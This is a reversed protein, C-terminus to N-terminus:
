LYLRLDGTLWTNEAAETMLLKTGFVFAIIARYLSGAIRGDGWELCRKSPANRRCRPALPEAGPFLLSPM